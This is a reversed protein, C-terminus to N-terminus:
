NGLYTGLLKRLTAQLEPLAVLEVKVNTLTGEVKVATMDEQALYLFKDLVNTGPLGVDKLPRATALVIGEVTSNKGERLDRVVGTGRIEAGRNYYYFDSIQLKTGRFRLEAKGHGLSKKGLRLNMSNYLTAIVKNNMLNSEKLTLKLSGSMGDMPISTVFYGKGDLRGAINEQKKALANAAQNVDINAFNSNAYIFYNDGRKSIRARGKVTGGLCPMELDTFVIRGLGIAGSFGVGSAKLNAPLEGNIDIKGEFTLPELPRQLESPKVEINGSSTGLLGEAKPWWMQLERLDVNTWSANLQTLDWRDMKVEARGTFEGGFLSADVRKVNLMNNDKVLVLAEAHGIGPCEVSVSAVNAKKNSQDNSAYVEIRANAAEVMDVPEHERNHLRLTIGSAYLSAIKLNNGILLRVLHNHKVNVEEVSVSGGPKFQLQVRVGAMRTNGAWETKLERISVQTGLEQQARKQVIKRPLDTLLIIQIVGAASVLFLLTIGFIVLVKKCM